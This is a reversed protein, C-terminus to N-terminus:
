GGDLLLIKLLYKDDKKWEVVSSNLLRNQQCLYDFPITNNEGMTVLYEEDSFIRVMVEDYDNDFEYECCGNKCRAKLFEEDLLSDCIMCKHNYNLLSMNNFVM